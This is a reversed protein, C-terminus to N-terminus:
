VKVTEKQAESKLQEFLEHAAQPKAGNHVVERIARIM